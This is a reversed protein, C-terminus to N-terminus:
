SNLREVGMIEYGSYDKIGVLKDFLRTLYDRKSEDEPHWTALEKESIHHHRLFRRLANKRWFVKLAADQTLEIFQSSLIKSM